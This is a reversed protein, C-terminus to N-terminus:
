VAAPAAGVLASQVESRLGAVARPLYARHARLDAPGVEVTEELRYLSLDANMIRALEPFPRVTNM